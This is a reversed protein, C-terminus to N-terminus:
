KRAAFNKTSTSSPISPSMVRSDTVSARCVMSGTSFGISPSEYSNPSPSSCGPPVEPHGTFSSLPVFSHSSASSSQNRMESASCSQSPVRHQLSRQGTETRATEVGRQGYTQRQHGPQHADHIERLGRGG